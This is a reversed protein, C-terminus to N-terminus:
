RFDLDNFRKSFRGHEIELRLVAFVREDGLKGAYVLDVLTRGDAKRRNRLFQMQEVAFASREQVPLRPSMRVKEVRENRFYSPCPSRANGSGRREMIRLNSSCDEPPANIDFSRRRFRAQRGPGTGDGTPM